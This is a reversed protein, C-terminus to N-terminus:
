PGIIEGTAEPWVYLDQAEPESLVYVTGAGSLELYLYGEPRLTM